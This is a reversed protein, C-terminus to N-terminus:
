FEKKYFEDPYTANTNYSIITKIKKSKNPLTKHLVFSPFTVIDGEKIDLLIKQKTYPDIIITKPADPPLEVYYINTFNGSHTHWGHESNELYQQFWIENLTFGGYGLELYSKSIHLSLDKIILKVWERELVDSKFWDTKSINVESIKHKPSKYESYKIKKLLEEKYFFHKEFFSISYFCNLKNINLFM